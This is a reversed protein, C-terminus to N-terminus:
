LNYKFLIGANLIAGPSISSYTSVIRLGYNLRKDLDFMTQIGLDIGLGSNDDLELKKDFNLYSFGFVSEFKSTESKAFDYNVQLAYKSLNYKVDLEDNKMKANAASLVLSIDTNINYSLFGETNVGMDKKVFQENLGFGINFKSQSYMMTYCFLFATIFLKIKM